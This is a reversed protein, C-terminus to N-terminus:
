VRSALHKMFDSVHTTVRRADNADYTARGHSVHNRWADKFFRFNSAAESLFRINESKEQSKPLQEMERIKKEIQDLITKWNELTLNEVTLGVAVTLRRLGHELARMFNFVSATWQDVVFCRVGDRLDNRAEPFSNEVGTSFITEPNTYAAKLGTPVIFFLQQSLETLLNNHLEKLMTIVINVNHDSHDKATTRVRKIQENLSFSLPLRAAEIIIQDLCKEVTNWSESADVSESRVGLAQLFSLSAVAGRMEGVVASFSTAYFRLM